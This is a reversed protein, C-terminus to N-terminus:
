LMLKPTVRAARVLRAWYTAQFADTRLHTWTRTKTINYTMNHLAILRGQLSLVTSSLMNAATLDGFMIAQLAAETVFTKALAAFGLLARFTTTKSCPVGNASTQVM